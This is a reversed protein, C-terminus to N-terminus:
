IDNIDLGIYDQWDYHHGCWIRFNQWWYKFRYLHFVNYYLYDKLSSAYWIRLKKGYETFEYYDGKKLWPREWSAGTPIYEQIIGHEFLYDLQKKTYFKEYCEKPGRYDVLSMLSYKGRKEDTNLINERVEFNFYDKLM